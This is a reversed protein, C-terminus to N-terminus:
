GEPNPQCTSNNNDDFECYYDGCCDCETCSGGPPVCCWTSVGQVTSSCTQRTTPTDCKLGASCSHQGPSCSQRLGKSGGGRNKKKRRKKKRRAAADQGLTLLEAGSLAGVLLGLTIRRNALAAFRSTIQEFRDHEMTAIWDEM